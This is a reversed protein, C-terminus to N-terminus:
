SNPVLLDGHGQEFGVGVNIVLPDLVVESNDTLPANVSRQALESNM